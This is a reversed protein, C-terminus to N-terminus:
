ANLKDRIMQKDEPALWYGTGHLIRVNVDVGIHKLHRRLRYVGMTLLKAEFRTYRVVDNDLLEALLSAQAATLGYVMQLNTIRDDSLPM